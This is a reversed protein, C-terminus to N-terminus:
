RQRQAREFLRKSAVLCLQRLKRGARSPNAAASRLRVVNDRWDGYRNIPLALLEEWRLKISQVIAGNQRRVSPPLSLMAEYIRRSILPHVEVQSPAAYSQAFAWCSMRLEMYALDLKLLSDYDGLPELWRGIESIIAPHRPLKLRDALGVADIETHQDSNLWLFGRGIEGGLGGVFVHGDLPTVSPHMVMNAGTICHGVRRLWAEAQSATAKRYPLVIHKLRFREALEKARVVELDAGPAAVTVFTVKELLDRSCALIM